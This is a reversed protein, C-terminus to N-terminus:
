GADLVERVKSLLASRTFPKALFHLGSDLVGRESLVDQTYGSLYLVRLGPVRRALEEAMAHGDMGPMVVDTVLLAERGLEADPLSLAKSPHGVATVQYGEDELTRVLVSRVMADDEVVLVREAGRTSGPRPRAPVEAAPGEARPLCVKFTTGRGPESEVHTHGGAQSVIGHVTALGLGTGKGQEKTTFFPEFLHARVEPSMGVGTDRVVLQIWDGAGPECEGGAEHESAALNRAGIFLQGGRPMADRANVVLNLLVQEAQSRDAYVAWPSPRLDVELEVDEGLLRGLMRESKRVVENLDLLVPSIVQKRAFALLQGTLDRAREGAAQIDEVEQLGSGSGELMSALSESSGLIVTLLNNFDHAVGGALRGVSELKQAQRLRQASEQLAREAGREETQDRFVLVVGHVTGAGDRIPAGSDAIPRETGDRAVLLTGNALGVIAGERLVRTVPDEVPQHTEEAVIRFVEQLPRGAAEEATWGTLREAVGNLLTIRADRGTAIVADGISHLTVSLREREAALALQAEKAASVDESFLVVGGIEGGDDRWPHIEWRLWDLTGDQRPFSDEDCREVAGALCRRHIEKWREPIEPFVDYHSRGLPEVPGLRYDALFRRSVALYRMERDFMAVAAPASEVFLRLLAERERLAQEAKRQVTVDRGVVVAATIEGALRVPAFSYSAVWTEGTDRRRLLYEAGTAAEGRLARSFPRQELPVPVGDLALIEILQRTGALDGPSDERSTFRHFGVWAQNFDVFRGDVGAIAVADTMSLLAAELKTRGDQVAQEARKRATVDIVVGLYRVTKGDADREPRGRSMLWREHGDQDRTRWSVEGESGSRVSEAVARDVADRDEPVISQRWAEHSPRCSHPQIGYLAWLEDSWTNENTRLDWEWTGASAAQLALRLREETAGVAASVAATRELAEVRERARHHVVAVATVAAGACCYVVLAAVDSPADIRFSGLPPLVWYCAALASAAVAVMGPGVGLLFAVVIAVPYATLFPPQPGFSAVLAERLWYSAAVLAIATAYRLRSGGANWRRALPSGANSAEIM